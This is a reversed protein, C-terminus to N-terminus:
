GRSGGTTCPRGAGRPYPCRRAAAPPPGPAPRPYPLDRPLSPPTLPPTGLLGQPRPLPAPPSELPPWHSGPPREPATGTDGGGTGDGEGRAPERFSRCTQLRWLIRQHTPPPPPHGPSPPGPAPHPHTKPTTGPLHPHDQPPPTDCSPSPPGPSPPHHRVSSEGTEGRDEGGGGRGLVGVAASMQKVRSSCERNKLRPRQTGTQRPSPAQPTTGTRVPPTGTRVPTGLARFQHEWPVTHVLAPHIEDQLLEVLTVPHVDEGLTSPFSPASPPLPRRQGPPAPDSPGQTPCQSCQSPSPASLTLQQERWAQPHHPPISRGAPTEQAGGM